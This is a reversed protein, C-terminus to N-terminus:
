HGGSAAVCAACTCGSVHADHEDAHCAGTNRPQAVDGILQLKPLAAGAHSGHAFAVGPVSIWGGAVLAAGVVLSTSSKM